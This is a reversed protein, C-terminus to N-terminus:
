DKTRLRDGTGRMEGAGEGARCVYIEPSIGTKERYGQSVKEKFGAVKDKEVLNVTCGGFGGGTMRAGLVGETEWAIGVMLDLEPCSIEYKDRMSRHSENMLQGFRRLDTEKLAAVAQLVRGNEEIVHQCRKKIVEPLSGKYREFDDEGVDRLAKIRPLHRKLYSVGEECEKRRKNYESDALGRKVMTNCIVIRLGEEPLPILEYDLSRCDLFLAKNREGLFSIFQDMIGCNVGVFENEARQCLKIMEIPKWEFGNLLYLSFVTAVEVAASSSLGAGLSINGELVMNM